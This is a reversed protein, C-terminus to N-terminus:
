ALDSGEEASLQAQLAEIREHNLCYGPPDEEGRGSESMWRVCREGNECSACRVVMGAFDERSLRGTAIAEAINVGVAKALGQTLWFHREGASEGIYDAFKLTM